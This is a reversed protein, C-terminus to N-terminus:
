DPSPRSRARNVGGPWVVPFLPHDFAAGPDLEDPLEPFSPSTPWPRPDWRADDGVFRLSLVRRRGTGAVGPAGHIALFHFWVVDGPELEWALIHHADPEADIDPLEALQGEPFWRAEHHLFTRPVCWPGLHSGAVVELSADLPVPDVPIWASVVQRGAIDYYPQDQHWPTRQHTGPEKVLVHDHHLRIETSATLAAAVAALQSSATLRDVWPLHDRTRFDEVFRGPDDDASAVIARATPAVLADDVARRALELSRADLLGRTVVAGDRAFEDVLDEDIM